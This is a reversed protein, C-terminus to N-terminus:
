GSGPPCAERVYKVQDMLAWDRKHKSISYFPRSVNGLQRTSVNKDHMYYLIIKFNILLQLKREGEM